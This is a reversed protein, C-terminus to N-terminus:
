LKKEKDKDKNMKKINVITDTIICTIIIATIAMIAVIIVMM